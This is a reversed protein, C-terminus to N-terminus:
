LRRRPPGPMERTGPSRLNLHRFLWVLSTWDALLPPFVDEGHARSKSEADIDLSLAFSVDFAWKTQLDDLDGADVHVQHAQVKLHEGTVVLLLAVALSKVIHFRPM